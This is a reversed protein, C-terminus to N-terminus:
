RNRERRCHDQAAHLALYRIGAEQWVDDLTARLSPVWGNGIHVVRSLGDNSVYVGRGEKHWNDLDPAWRFMANM